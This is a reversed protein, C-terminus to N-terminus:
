GIAGMMGVLPLMVAILTAGVAVTLLAALAPEVADIARDLRATADDFFTASLQELVSDVSGARSGIALMRAYVPEFIGFESVAQSLSLGRSPDTMAELAGELRARLREHSVAATAERVATNSNAGSALYASVASSFRSLALRDMADRTVPLRDLLRLIHQQGQPRRVAVVGALACATVVLTLALAAWGVVLAAQVAGFSGGTLGGALQEYVDLFVPLIGIVTFALIGSMVCLLAAPYGISTRLKFFMRAEEDYYVALSRLVNELRGSREGIGTLELAYPPFVGTSRMADALGSGACLERYIALCARRLPTDSMNDALMHVAEDTQIGAALMIACSECFMAVDAGGLPTGAPTPAATPAPTGMSADTNYEIHPQTRTESM